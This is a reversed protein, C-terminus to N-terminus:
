RLMAEFNVRRRPNKKPRSRCRVQALQPVDTRRIEEATERMMLMAIRGQLGTNIAESGGYPHPLFRVVLVVFPVPGHLVIATLSRDVIM